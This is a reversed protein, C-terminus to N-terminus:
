PRGGESAPGMFGRWALTREGDRVTHRRSAGAQWSVGVGAREGDTFEIVVLDRGGQSVLRVATVLPEADRAYEEASSYDGYAELVAAFAFGHAGEGRLLVGREPRLNDNPDNAGLEVLTARNLQPSTFSYSYYRGENFWRLQGAGSVPADARRWLHQYGAAVGVPELRTAYHSFALSTETLAGRYHLPVDYRHASRSDARLLDVVLTRQREPLEVLAMARRLTVGAYADQVLAAAYTAEDSTSFHLMRTPASESAETRAGFQSTEDVVLTNHAVTQKAWTENEALYRGGDKAEVNIFRAAGYDTIIERGNDYFLWSLRDFHGHGMGQATAEFVLAQNQGRTTNRMIALGGRDGRPGDRLLMSAFPFPRPHEHALANALAVGDPTFMVRGQEQAVSLLALDRTLAYALAVAHLIEPSDLGKDSYDNIPFFRGEYTQQVLNTIARLLVGNRYAFIEREPEYLEIMRAFAVFPMIAYRAYYPGEAYYGDPSFLQDIQKYFGSSGDGSLGYLARRVLTEDALVYGTMGVAAAAWAAHNHIRSFTPGSGVSLFEAMPRFVNTEIREREQATLADRMDAYGQISEVLWVTDNLSQWFLRGRQRSQQVPHLDLTPYLDAYAILIDRVLDAYAREGTAAYLAGASRIIRCNDKHREHTYGGGPDAPRPVDPRRELYPAVDTRARALAARAFPAELQAAPPFARPLSQLAPSRQASVPAASFSLAVALLLLRAFRIM